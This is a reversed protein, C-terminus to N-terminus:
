ANLLFQAGDGEAREKFIDLMDWMFQEIEPEAEDAMIVIEMDAQDEEPIEPDLSDMASAIDSIVSSVNDVGTFTITIDEGM